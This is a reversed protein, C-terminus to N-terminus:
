IYREILEYQFHNLNEINKNFVIETEDIKDICKKLWEIDEFSFGYKLLWIECEDDTGYKVYNSMRLALENHTRNYYQIFIAYYVDSLKFGILKDLFDYTDYVVRDYDVMEVPLNGFLSYRKLNKNPLENYGTFYDATLYHLTREYIKKVLIDKETRIKKILENRTKKKTAQAYRINCITKFTKNNIQWIIIRIATKLVDNEAPSLPRNLYYEYLKTFGNYLNPQNRTDNSINEDTIIKNDIFINSLIYEIILNLNSNNLREVEKNTLNYEDSFTGEKIAKKFERYDDNLIEKDLNSITDLEDSKGLVTRLQSMNSHKVIVYGFDFQKKNTSRGARGILNKIALPESEKFTNIYVIEFPMNIGQELTSTAFCIRCYGLNTFKEILQRARLPMSGHHVVIGRYLMEIMLSPYEDSTGNTAGIYKKIEEIIDIADEDEIKNCLKIYKAFESFVEKNYISSKTTYVLISGKNLLVKQIIDEDSLIKIHGMIDKDIGFYYFSNDNHAIFVQGVNRQEYKTAESSEAILNNKQIQAVPNNIFPHAFVIKSDPFSKNIRRVISDFYIGRSSEENGIQAEDFLFLEVNFSDKQKFIERCREPTVIFISRSAKKTNIKEIFTLVNVTKDNILSCIKEYYENILARSPVIVVVDKVANTLLYRFTFSKGTSTPASFSFIQYNKIKNLIDAQLPTYNDGYIDFIYENYLDFLKAKLTTYQPKKYYIGMMEIVDQEVEKFKEPQFIKLYSLIEMTSIDTPGKEYLKDLAYQIIEDVNQDTTIKRIVENIM